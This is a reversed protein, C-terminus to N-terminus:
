FFLEVAASVLSGQLAVIILLIAIILVIILVALVRVAVNASKAIGGTQPKDSPSSSSVCLKKLKRVIEL